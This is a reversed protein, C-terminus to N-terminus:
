EKIQSLENIINKTCFVDNSLIKLVADKKAPEHYTRKSTMAEYVDVSHLLYIMRTIDESLPEQVSSLKPKGIGHHFLVPVYIEPSEGMDKLTKYGYYSHLDVVDRELPSLGTNKKLIRSPIYIKGIDHLLGVKYATESDVSQSPALTKCIQAVRLSHKRTEENLQKIYAKYKEAVQKSM